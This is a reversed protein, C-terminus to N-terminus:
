RVANVRGHFASKRALGRIRTVLPRDEMGDRQGASVVILDRNAATDRYNAALTADESLPCDESLWRLAQRGSPASLMAQVYQALSSCGCM